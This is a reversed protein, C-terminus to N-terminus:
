QASAAQAPSVPQRPLPVEFGSVPRMYRQQWGKKLKVPRHQMTNRTSHGVSDKHLCMTCKLDDPKTSMTCTVCIKDGDLNNEACFESIPGLICKGIQYYDPNAACVKIKNACSGIAINKKKPNDDVVNGVGVLKPDKPGRKSTAVHVADSWSAPRKAGVVAVGGPLVEPNQIRFDVLRHHSKIALQIVQVFGAQKSQQGLFGQLSRGCPAVQSMQFAFHTDSESMLM